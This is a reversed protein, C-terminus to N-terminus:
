IFILQALFLSLQIIWASVHSTPFGQECRKEKDPLLPFQFLIEWIGPTNGLWHALGGGRDLQKIFNPRHWQWEQLSCSLYRDTPSLNRTTCGLCLSTGGQLGSKPCEKEDANANVLNSLERCSTSGMRLHRDKGKRQIPLRTM